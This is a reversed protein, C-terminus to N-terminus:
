GQWDATTITNVKRHELTPLVWTNFAKKHLKISEISSHLAVYELFREFALKLRIESVVIGGNIFKDAKQEAEIKGKKGKQSSYFTKRVGDVQVKIQWRKHKEFWVAENKRM